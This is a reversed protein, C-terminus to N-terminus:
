KKMSRGAFLIALFISIVVIVHIMIATSHREWM